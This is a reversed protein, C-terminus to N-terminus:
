QMLQKCFPDSFISELYPFAAFLHLRRYCHGGAWYFWLTLKNMGCYGEGIWIGRGGGRERENRTIQAPLLLVAANSNMHVTGCVM